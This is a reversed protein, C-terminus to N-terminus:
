LLGAEEAWGEVMEGVSKSTLSKWRAVTKRREGKRRNAYQVTCYMFLDFASLEGSM